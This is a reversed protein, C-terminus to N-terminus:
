TLGHLFTQCLTSVKVKGDDSCSILSRNLSDVTLGTVAGKHRGEGKNFKKVTDLDDISASAEQLRQLQLKKAEVPTLRAPFRRRHQGSQLNYVDIAGGASGIM